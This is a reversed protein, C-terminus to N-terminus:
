ADKINVMFPMTIRTPNKTNWDKPKIAEIEHNMWGPWLLVDGEELDIVKKLREKKFYPILEQNFLLVAPDEMTIRQTGEVLLYLGGSILYEPHNHSKGIGNIYKQSWMENIYFELSEDLELVKQYERIMDNIQLMIEKMAPHHHLQNGNPDLRDNKPYTSYTEEGKSIWPPVMADEQSWLEDLHSKIDELAKQYGTVKKRYIYNPFVRDM